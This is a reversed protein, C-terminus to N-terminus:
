NQQEIMMLFPLKVSPSLRNNQLRHGKSRRERLPSRAVKRDYTPWIPKKGNLLKATRWALIEELTKLEEPDVATKGAKVRGYFEALVDVIENLDEAATDFGLLVKCAAEKNGRDLLEDSYLSAVFKEDYIKNLSNYKEAYYKYGKEQGTGFNGSGNEKADLAAKLNFIASAFTPDFELARRASAAAADFKKM